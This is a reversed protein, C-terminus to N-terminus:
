MWPEQRMLLRAKNVKDHATVVARFAGSHNQACVSVSVGSLLGPAHMCAHMCWSTTSSVLLAHQLPFFTRGAVRRARGFSTM